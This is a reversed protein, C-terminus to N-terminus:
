IEINEGVIHPEDPRKFKMGKREAEDLKQKIKLNAKETLMQDAKQMINEKDIKTSYAVKRVPDDLNFNERLEKLISESLHEKFLKYRKREIKLILVAIISIIVLMVGGGVLAVKWYFTAFMTNVEKEYYSGRDDIEKLFETRQRTLEDSVYKRTNKHELDIKSFIENKNLTEHAPNTSIQQISGDGGNTNVPTSTQGLVNSLTLIFIITIIILNKKIM